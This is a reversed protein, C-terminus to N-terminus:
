VIFNILKDKVFIVKKPEAGNFWKTVEPHQRAAAAAEDQNIGVKVGLKHRMKGNVSVILEFSADTILKEDYMPWTEHDLLEKKGLMVWVEQALHPAFPFLMKAFLGLEGVGVGSKEMENLLIMMASIATNFHFQKIDEGVKKITKHLLKETAEGTKAGKKIEGALTVIRALFRHLGVIGRPDWPKADELPGMFMEYLRLSDAGFEGVMEDPNVVNGRSKSMKQGDPGLILGQNVLRLFPEKTSVAGIDFLAKHWFRAYLLHLVAHEVGGIYLDVPMWHKEIDSAAM